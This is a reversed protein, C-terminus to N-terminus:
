GGHLSVTIVGAPDARLHMVADECHTFVHDLTGGHSTHSTRLNCDFGTLLDLPRLMADGDDDRELHINLDGALIIQCKYLAQTELHNVLEKYFLDTVQQSRSQYILLVAITSSRDGVTFAMSEFSTPKCSSKIDRYKLDSNVIASM